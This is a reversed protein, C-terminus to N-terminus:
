YTPIDLDNWNRPFEKLFYYNAQINTQVGCTHKTGASARFNFNYTIIFRKSQLPLWYEGPRRLDYM